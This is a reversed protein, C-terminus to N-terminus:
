DRIIAFGKGRWECSLLVRRERAGSKGHPLDLASPEAIDEAHRRLARLGSSRSELAAAHLDEARRMHADLTARLISAPTEGGLLKVDKDRESYVSAARLTQPIDIEAIRELEASSKADLETADVASAIQAIRCRADRSEVGVWYEWEESEPSSHCFLEGDSLIIGLFVFWAIVAVIVVGIM